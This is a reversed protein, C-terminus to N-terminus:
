KPGHVQLLSGALCQESYISYAMPIPSTTRGQLDCAATVTSAWCLMHILCSSPRRKDLPIEANVPAARALAGRMYQRRAINWAFLPVDHGDFGTEEHLSLPAGDWTTPDRSPLLPGVHCPMIHRCPTQHTTSPSYPQNCTAFQNKEPGRRVFQLWAPTLGHQM